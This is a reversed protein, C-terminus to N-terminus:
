SSGLECSVETCSSSAEDVHLTWVASSEAWEGVDVVCVSGDVTGAAVLGGTARVAEVVMVRVVEVEVEEEDEVM